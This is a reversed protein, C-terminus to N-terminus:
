PGFDFETQPPARAPLMKMVRASLRHDALMPALGNKDFIATVLKMGKGCGCALRSALRAPHAAHAPALAGM